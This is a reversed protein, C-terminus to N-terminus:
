KVKSKTKFVFKRQTWYSIPYTIVMSIIQAIYKNWLFVNEMLSLLLYNLVFVLAVILYYRFIVGKDNQCGKFVSDKNIKYNCLSSLIRAVGVDILRAIDPALGKTLFSALIFLIYDILSCALSSFIFKFIVMYIKFSDRVANFHSSENDNIYVTEIWVEKMPIGLEAAKLLMNMEYEYREGKLACLDELYRTPIARLGTQTDYIKVGSALAFVGRTITNGARSKFPVDGTFKRSGIIITDPNEMLAETCARIDKVLHQGDADALVVGADDPFNQYCYEFATKMARGKGRNVDHQLVTVYDPIAQFVADFDAGSGDNVVIINYDTNEHLDDILRLLKEDPKYAPIIVNM